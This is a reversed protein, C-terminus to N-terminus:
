APARLTLIHGYTATLNFFCSRMCFRPCIAKRVRTRNGGGGGIVWPWRRETPRKEQPISRTQPAEHPDRRVEPIPRRPGDLDPEAREPRNQEGPRRPPEPRLGCTPLITGTYFLLNCASSDLPQIPDNSVRFFVAGTSIGQCPAPPSGPYQSMRYLYRM